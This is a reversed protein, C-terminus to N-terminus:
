RGSGDWPGRRVNDRRMQNRFNNRVKRYKFYNRISGSIYPWFFIFYNILALVAAIKSPVSSFIITAGFVIWDLCALYKVKIPLFMM